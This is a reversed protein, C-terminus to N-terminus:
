YEDQDTHAGTSLYVDWIGRDTIEAREIRM